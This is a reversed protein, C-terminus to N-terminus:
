RHHMHSHMHHGAWGSPPDNHNKLKKHQNLSGESGYAKGCWCKFRREIENATRRYRKNGKDYGFSAAGGNPGGYDQSGDDRMQGMAGSDSMSMQEDNMQPRRM